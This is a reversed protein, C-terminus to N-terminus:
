FNQNPTVLNGVDFEVTTDFGNPGTARQKIHTNFTPNSSFDTSPVFSPDPTMVIENAVLGFLPDTISQRLNMGRGVIDGASRDIINLNDITTVSSNGPVQISQRMTLQGISSQAGLAAGGLGGQEAFFGNGRTWTEQQWTGGADDGKDRIIMHTFTQGNIPVFEFFFFKDGSQQIQGGVGGVSGGGAPTGCTAITTCTGNDFKTQANATGAILIGLILSWGFLKYQVKKM